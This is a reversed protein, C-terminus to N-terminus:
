QSVTRANQGADAFDGKALKVKGSLGWWQALSPNKDLQQKIRVLAPDFNGQQTDLNVLAETAPRYDPSIVLAKELAERADSLKGLSILITGIAHEPLPNNPVLDAMRRYVELASGTDRQFLYAAGLL